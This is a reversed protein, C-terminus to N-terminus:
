PLRLELIDGTSMWLEDLDFTDPTVQEVTGLILNPRATAPSISLTYHKIGNGIQVLSEDATGNPAFYIVNTGFESSFESYESMESTIWIPRIAINEFITSEPLQVPRHYMNNIIQEELLVGDESVLDMTLYFGNNQTDLYMKCPQNREVAVIRAYLAAQLLEAAAKEVLRKHYSRMYMGGGMGAILAILTITALIEALTFGFRHSVASTNKHIISTPMKDKAAPNGTPAM